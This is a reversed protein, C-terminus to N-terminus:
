TLGQDVRKKHRYALYTRTIGVFLTIIYADLLLIIIKAIAEVTNSRNELQKDKIRLAVEEAIGMGVVIM